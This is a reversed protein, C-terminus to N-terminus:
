SVLQIIICDRPGIGFHEIPKSDDDLPVLLRRRDQEASEQALTADNEEEVDTDTNLLAWLKVQNQEVKEGKASQLLKLVKTRAMRLPTSPLLKASGIREEMEEGEEEDEGGKEPDVRTFRVQLDLMKSKLTVPQETKARAKTDAAYVRKTQEDAIGLYVAAAPVHTTYRQALEAFRPFSQAPDASAPFSTGTATSLSAAPPPLSNVFKSLFYIEAERREEVSVPTSNLSRLQGLRAILVLRADSPHLDRWNAATIIDRTSFDNTQEDSSSAPQPTPTPLDLVLSQLGKLTCAHLNELDSWSKLHHNFSINVHNFPAKPAQSEPLPAPISRLLNSSLNVRELHRFVPHSMAHLLDHWDELANNALNLQKLSPLHEHDSLSDEQSQQHDAPLLRQLDNGACSVTQLRPLLGAQSIISLTDNWTIFTRDM